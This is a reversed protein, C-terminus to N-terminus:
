VDPLRWPVAIVTLEPDGYRLLKARLRAARRTHLLKSYWRAKVVEPILVAVRRPGLHGRLESVLKLVPEHM